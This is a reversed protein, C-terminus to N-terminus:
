GLQIKNFHRRRRLRWDHSDHVVPLEQEFRVLFGVRGLALLLLNLDLFDLKTGTRSLAIVLDLQTIQDAEQGLSVLGLYGQPETAPLHHVLIDSAPKQVPNLVIEGQMAHDLLVRQHFALLHDHHKCWFLLLLRRDRPVPTTRGCAAAHAAQSRFSYMPTLDHGLQFGVTPSRLTEALSRFAELVVRGFTAVVETVLVALDFAM